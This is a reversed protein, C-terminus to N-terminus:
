SKNKYGYKEIEDTLLLQSMGAYSLASRRLESHGQSNAWAPLRPKSHHPLSQSGAPVQPAPRPLTYSDCPQLCVGGSCDSFKLTTVFKYDLVSNNWKYMWKYAWINRFKSWKAFTFILDLKFLLKCFWQFLLFHVCTNKKLM